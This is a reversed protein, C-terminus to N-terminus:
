ALALHRLRQHYVSWVADNLLPEDPDTSDLLPNLDAALVAIVRHEKDQV